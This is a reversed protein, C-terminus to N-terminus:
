RAHKSRKIKIRILSLYGVVILSLIYFIWTGESIISIIALFSVYLFSYMVLITSILNNQFSNPTDLYRIQINM